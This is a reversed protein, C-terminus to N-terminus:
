HFNGNWQGLINKALVKTNSTCFCSCLGNDRLPAGEIQWMQIRNHIVLRCKKGREWVDKLFFTEEYLSFFCFRKEHFCDKHGKEDVEFKWSHAFYM